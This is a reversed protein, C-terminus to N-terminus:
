SNGQILQVIWLAWFAGALWPGFALQLTRGHGNVLALCLAGTAALLVLWPLATPGLWAGAAALLKADGQGLGDIGRLRFYVAGIVWFAAYGLAAGLVAQVPWDGTRLTALGIGLGILPLTLRDPLQLERLDTLVLRVLFVALILTAIIDPYSLMSPNQIM